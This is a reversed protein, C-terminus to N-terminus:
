MVILNAQIYYKGLLEPWHLKWKRSLKILFLHLTDIINSEGCEIEKIFVSVDGEEKITGYYGEEKM